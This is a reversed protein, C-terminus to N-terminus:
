THGLNAEVQFGDRSGLSVSFVNCDEEQECERECERECEQECEQECEEEGANGRWIKTWTTATTRERRRCGRMAHCQDVAVKEEVEM